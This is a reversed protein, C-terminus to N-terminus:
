EDRMDLKLMFTTKERLEDATYGSDGNKHSDFNLSDEYIIKGNKSDKVIMSVRGEISRTAICFLYGDFTFYKTKKINKITKEWPADDNIQIESGNEDIYNAKIVYPNESTSSQMEVKYTVDVETEHATRTLSCSLTFIAVAFLAIIKGIQNKM